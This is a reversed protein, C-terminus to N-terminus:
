ATSGADVTLVTGFMAVRSELLALQNWSCLYVVADRALLRAVRLLVPHLGGGGDLLPRTGLDVLTVIM